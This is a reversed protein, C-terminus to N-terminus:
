KANRNLSATWASCAEHSSFRFVGKPQGRGRALQAATRQLRAFRQWPTKRLQGVVKISSSM